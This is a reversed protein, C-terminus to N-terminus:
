NQTLGLRRMRARFCMEEVTLVEDIVEVEDTEIIEIGETEIVEVLNTENTNM